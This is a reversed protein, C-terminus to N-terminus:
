QKKLIVADSGVVFIDSGAGRVDSLSFQVAPRWPAMDVFQSGDWRKLETKYLSTSVFPLGASWAAGDFRYADQQRAPLISTCADPRM